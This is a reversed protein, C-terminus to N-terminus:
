LKALVKQLVYVENNGNVQDFLMLAAAVAFGEVTRLTGTDPVKYQENCEKPDDVSNYLRCITPRYEYIKCMGKEDLMACRKNAYRLRHHAKRNQRDVLQKDVPINFQKIASYIVTAEVYSLQIEGYCCFHCGASCSTKATLGTKDNIADIYYHSWETVGQPGRKDYAEQLIPLMEEAKTAIEEFNEKLFDQIGKQKKM